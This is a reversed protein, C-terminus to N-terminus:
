LLPQLYWELSPSETGFFSNTTSGNECVYCNHFFHAVRYQRLPIDNSQRNRNLLRWHVMYQQFIKHQNSVGAYTHEKVNRISSFADNETAEQVTLVDHTHRHIICELTPFIGDTYISWYRASFDGGNIAQTIQPQLSMLYPNLNSLALAGNDNERASIPGFLFPTIGNPFLIDLIKLGHMQKYGSYVSRNLIDADEWRPSNNGAYVPGSGPITTEQLTCDGLGIVRQNWIWDVGLEVLKAGIIDAFEDFHVVWRDLCNGYLFGDLRMDVHRIFWSYMYSLRRSDGGFFTDAMKTFPVAERMRFFSMIFTEEDTFTYGNGPRVTLPLDCSKFIVHLRDPQMGLYAHCWRVNLLAFSRNRAVPIERPVYPRPWDFDPWVHFLFLDVLQWLLEEKQAALYADLTVIELIDDFSIGDYFSSSSSSSSSSSISMDDDSSSSSSSHSSSGTGTSSGSSSSSSSSTGSSSSGASSSSDSSIPSSSSSSSSSDSDGDSHGDDLLGSLVVVVTAEADVREFHHLAWLFFCLRFLQAEKQNLAWAREWYTTERRPKRRHALEYIGSLDM